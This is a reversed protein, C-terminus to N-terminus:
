EEDEAHDIDARVRPDNFLRDMRGAADFSEDHRFRLDPTFKMDIHKGLVGRLFKAHTNLAKVIEDVHGATPAAEVGARREQQPEARTVGAGLPEVFCTAHKLDPSMRVETVTVSVGEMAPDHIEEERLVEVLAHRILEGARLQRQSPGQPGSANRTHRKVM